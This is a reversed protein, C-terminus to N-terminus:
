IIEIEKDIKEKTKFYNRTVEMLYNKRSEENFIRPNKSHFIPVFDRKEEEAKAIKEVQKKFRAQRSAPFFMKVFLGKKM